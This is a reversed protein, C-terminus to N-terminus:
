GRYLRDVAAQGVVVRAVEAPVVAHEGRRALHEAGGSGTAHGLHRAVGLAGEAAPGAARPHPHLLPDALADVGLPYLLRDRGACAPSRLARVTRLDSRSSDKWSDPACSPM